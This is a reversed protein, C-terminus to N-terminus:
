ADNSKRAKEAPRGASIAASFTNPIVLAVLAERSNLKSQLQAYGQAYGDLVFYRSGVFRQVLERSSASSSQDWVVIRVSNVDLSLGYGLSFLLLLPIAIAGVLSRWDRRIHISEKHAVAWVRLGNM